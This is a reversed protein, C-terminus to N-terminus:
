FSTLFTNVRHYREVNVKNAGDSYFAYACEIRRRILPPRCSFVLPANEWQVQGPPSSARARPQRALLLVSQSISFHWVIPLGHKERISFDSNRVSLFTATRQLPSSCSLGEAAPPV